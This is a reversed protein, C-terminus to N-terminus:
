TYPNSLGYEPCKPRPLSEGIPNLRPQHNSPNVQIDQIYKCAPKMTSATSLQCQSVLIAVFALAFPGPVFFSPMKAPPSPRLLLRGPPVTPHRNVLTLVHHHVRDPDAAFIVLCPNARPKPPKMEQGLRVKSAHLLQFKTVCFPLLQVLAGQQVPAGQHVM